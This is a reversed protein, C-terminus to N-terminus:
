SGVQKLSLSRSPNHFALEALCFQMEQPGPQAAPDEGLGAAPLQSELQGDSQGVIGAALHGEVWVGTDTAREAVQEGGESGGARREGDDLGEPLGLEGEGAPVAASGAGALQVPFVQGVVLDEFDQVVRGVDASVAVAPGAVGGVQVSVVVRQGFQGVVPGHQDDFVMGAVDGPRLVLGVLLHQGGVCGGPALVAFGARWAFAGGQQLAEDDAADAAPAHGHPVVGPVVSRDHGVVHALVVADAIGLRDALM